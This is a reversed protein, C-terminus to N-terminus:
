RRLSKTARKNIELALGLGISDCEGNEEFDVVLTGIKDRHIKYGNELALEKTEFHEMVMGYFKEDNVGREFLYTLFKIDPKDAEISNKYKQAVERSDITLLKRQMPTLDTTEVKQIDSKVLNSM